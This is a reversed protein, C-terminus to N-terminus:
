VERVCFLLLAHSSGVLIRGSWNGGRKVLPGIGKGEREHRPVQVARVRRPRLQRDQLDEDQRRSAGRRRRRRGHREGAARRLARSPAVEVVQRVVDGRAPSGM